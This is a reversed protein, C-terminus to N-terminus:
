KQFPINVSDGHIPDFRIRLILCDISGTGTKRGRTRWLCGKWWLIGVLFLLLCVAGIVVGVIIHVTQKTQGNPCLKFDTWFCFLGIINEQL